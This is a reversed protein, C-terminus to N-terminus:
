FFFFFFMFGVMSLVMRVPINGIFIFSYDVAEKKISTLIRLKLPEFQLLKTDRGKSKWPYPYAYTNHFLITVNQWKLHRWLILTSISWHSFERMNKWISIKHKNQKKYINFIWCWSFFFHLTESSLTVYYSLIM